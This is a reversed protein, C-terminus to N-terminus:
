STEDPRTEDETPAAPPPTEPPATTTSAAGGAGAGATAARPMSPLSEGSEQFNRFAGYAILAALVIGVYAPWHVFDDSIVKIIAFLLILASLVLAVLAEPVAGPIEVNFMRAVVWVILVITMLGLMVGWFGHWASQGASVDQGFVEGSVQQWDLFSDILLLIGGGLILKKALSLAQLQEMAAGKSPNVGRITGQCPNSDQRRLIERAALATL